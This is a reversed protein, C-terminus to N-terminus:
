HVNEAPNVSVTFARNATKEITVMDGEKFSSLSNWFYNAWIRWRADIRADFSKGNVLVSFKVLPKPFMKRVSAEVYIFYREAESQRLKRKYVSM